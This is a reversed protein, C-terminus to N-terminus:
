QGQWWSRALDARGPRDSGGVPPGHERPFDGAPPRRARVGGDDRRRGAPVLAETLEAAATPSQPVGALHEALSQGEVFELALFPCGQHEGAEYVQVINPHQLRALIEAESRFRVLEEASGHGDALLMKLAVTRKLGLHRAKYVVSSGGRGLVGLLEYGGPPAELPPESRHDPAAPSAVSDGSLVEEMRRLFEARPEDRSPPVPRRLLRWKRSDADASLQDLTSRCANCAELHASLVALDADSLRAALLDQWRELPPCTSM